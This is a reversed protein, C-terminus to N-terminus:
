VKSVLVKFKGGNTREIRNLYSIKLKVSPGFREKLCRLINNEDDANYGPSKVVNM